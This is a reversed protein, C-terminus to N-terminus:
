GSYNFLFLAVRFRIACIKSFRVLSEL